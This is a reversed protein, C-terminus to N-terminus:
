RGPPRGPTPAAERPLPKPAIVAPASKVGRPKGASPKGPHIVGAPGKVKHPHVVPKFPAVPAVPYAPYYYSNDYIEALLATQELAAATQLREEAAIQQQTRLQEERLRLEAEDRAAERAERERERQFAAIERARAALGQSSPRPVEVIEVEPTRKWWVRKRARTLENQFAEYAAAYEATDLVGPKQEAERKLARATRALQRKTEKMLAVERDRVDAESITITGSDRAAASPLLFPSSLASLFLAGAALGKLKWHGCFM